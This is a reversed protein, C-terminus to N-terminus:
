ALLQKCLDARYLSRRKRDVIRYRRCGSFSDAHDLGGDSSLAIAGLMGHRLGVRALVTGVALTAMLGVLYVSFLYSLASTSLQFPVDALYFTVYSFSSVLTFLMCFGIGYTALLRSNRLNRIMPAFVSTRLGGNVKRTGPKLLRSTILAGGAGCIALILFMVRWGFHAALVGGSVRGIFGGFVTGAVYISMVRPVLLPQWEETIYAITIIFIGPTLLGQLFRWLALEVLGHATSTLAVAGALGAMATVITRKRDLREGFMALLAAAVAVGLTSASITVGVSSESAQFVRSLLPLLPQTCYLELFAFTGCLFVAVVAGAPGLGSSKKHRKIRPSELDESISEAISVPM